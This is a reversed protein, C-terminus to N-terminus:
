GGGQWNPAELKSGVACPAVLVVWVQWPGRHPWPCHRCTLWSPRHPEPPPCQPPRSPPLCPPTTRPQASNRGQSNNELHLAM